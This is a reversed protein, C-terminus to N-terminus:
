PYFSIISVNILIENIIYFYQVVKHSGIEPDFNIAIIDCILSKGLLKGLDIKHFKSTTIKPKVEQTTNTNRENTGTSYIFPLRRPARLRTVDHQVTPPPPPPRYRSGGVM